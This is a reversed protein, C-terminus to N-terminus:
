ITELIKQIYKANLWFCQKLHMTGQPTLIKDNGDRGKPRVHAVPSDKTSPLKTCDIGVQMRTAEWVRQAELRDGYPMNWYKATILREEGAEDEQFIVFLFKSEIKEFFSSEEWEQSQIGIYDFGPFSMSERPTGSKRLRVTKLEIGSKKLEALSGDGRTLIRNALERHFGKHNKDRKFFSLNLSIDSVTMNEYTAFRRKTAEEITVDASIELSSFNSAHGEILFNLYNQKFSFARSKAGIKSFPQVRLTEESGGAGKRCAGLYFTDGESLEHAKGELVKKQIFEWDKRIIILDEDPLEYLMPPIVFIRETVPVEKDFLYFLILMKQCKEILTSNMWSETAIKEFNIMGLVLREKAKFKGKSNRVVGTTKLELGALPFDPGSNSGPIHKFFYKEILTGLDGRNKKNEIESPIDAVEALSKGLLRLSYEYISQASSKDYQDKFGTEM